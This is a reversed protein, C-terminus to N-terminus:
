RKEMYRLLTRMVNEFVALRALEFGHSNQCVHGLVAVRAAAGAQCIAGADSFSKEYVVPQLETGAEHASELLDRILRQDYNCIADKSWIGPRGDLKLVTQDTIACGDIAIFIEPKERLALSRAGYGGGEEHVTFAAILSSSPCFGKEKLTKLMLLLIAVGARDDFSWASILPSNKGGFVYPGRGEKAPVASSGPRVGAAKLERPSLGTIIRVGHWDPAWVGNGAVKAHAPGMSFLGSVTKDNDTMIVVQCEGLKCPHLGGSPGVRLNGNEEIATVVMAVEDMHAALITKSKARGPCGLRVLVNGSADTESDMGFAAIKERIVSAMMEERGPPAPVRILESLIEVFKKNFADM